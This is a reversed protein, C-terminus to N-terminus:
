AKNNATFSIYPHRICSPLHLCYMKGLGHRECLLSCYIVRGLIICSLHSLFKIQDGKIPNPMMMMMMEFSFHYNIRHPYELTTFQGIFIYRSFFTLGTIREKQENALSDRAYM